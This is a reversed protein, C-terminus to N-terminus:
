NDMRNSVVLLKSPKLEKWTDRKVQVFEYDVGAAALILRSVLVRNGGHFYYLKIEPM